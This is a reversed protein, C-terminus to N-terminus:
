KKILKVVLYDILTMIILMGIAAIIFSIPNFALGYRSSSFGFLHMITELAPVASHLIVMMIIMLVAVLIVLYGLKALRNKVPSLLNAVIDIVLIILTFMMFGVLFSAVVNLYYNDFHSYFNVLDTVYYPITTKDSWRVFMLRETSLHLIMYIGENILAGSLMLVIRQKFNFHHTARLNLWTFILAMSFALTLFQIIDNNNYFYDLVNLINVKEYLDLSVNRTARAIWALAVLAIFVYLMNKRMKIYFNHIFGKNFTEM